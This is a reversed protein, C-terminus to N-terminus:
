QSVRDVNAVPGEPDAGGVAWLAGNVRVIEYYARATAFSASTSQYSVLIHSGEAAERDYEFRSAEANDSHM